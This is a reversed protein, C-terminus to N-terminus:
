DQDNLFRAIREADERRPMVAFPPADSPLEEDRIAWAGAEEDVAYRDPLHYPENLAAHVMAEWLGAVDDESVERRHRAFAERMARTAGTAQELIRVAFSEADLDSFRYEEIVPVLQRIFTKPM